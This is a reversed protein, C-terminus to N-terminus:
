RPQQDLGLSDRSRNLIFSAWSPRKKKVFTGSNDSVTNPVHEKNRENLVPTVTNSKKERSVIEQTNKANSTMDESSSKMKQTEQGADNIM